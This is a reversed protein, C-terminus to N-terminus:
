GRSSVLSVVGGCTSFEGYGILKVADKAAEEYSCYLHPRNDEGDIARNNERAVLHWYGDYPEVQKNLKRLYIGNRTVADHPVALFVGQIDREIMKVSGINKLLLPYENRQKGRESM